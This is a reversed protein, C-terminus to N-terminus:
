PQRTLKTPSQQAIWQIIQSALKDSAIGFTAVIGEMNNHGIPEHISFDKAAIITRTRSDVLYAYYHIWVENKAENYEGQFAYLESTLNLQSTLNHRDSSVTQVCHSQQIAQILYNLLMDPTTTTWRAGQYSTIVNKDTHVLINNSDLLQNAVPPEVQLVGNFVPTKCYAVQNATPLQYNEVTTPPPIISCAAQILAIFLLTILKASLILNKM